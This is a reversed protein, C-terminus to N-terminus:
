SLKEAACQQCGPDKQLVSNKWEAKLADFRMVKGYLSDNGTIIKIAELAQMSGIIGTLAGIIGADACTAIEPMALPEPHFCRYCPGGLHPAFASIVASFRGVAAFLWPIGSKFCSKNITDRAAFSDTCDLLLDHGSIIEDANKESIFDDILTLSIDHRIDQLRDAIAATKSRGIDAEEFAIQRNLNSLAVRDNDVLTIHGIGAAALYIAAPCGLGGCGAIIIRAQSIKQQGAEGIEPLVIQRAYRTKDDTPLM